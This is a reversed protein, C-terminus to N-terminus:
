IYGFLRMFDGEGAATRVLTLAPYDRVEFKGDAVLVKYYPVETAMASVTLMCAGLFSALTKM